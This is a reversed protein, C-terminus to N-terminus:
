RNIYGFFFRTDRTVTEDARLAVNFEIKDGELIFGRNFIIPGGTSVIYDDKTVEIKQGDRTLWIKITDDDYHYYNMMGEYVDFPVCLEWQKNEPWDTATEKNWISTDVTVKSSNGGTVGASIVEDTGSTLFWQKYEKVSVGVEVAHWLEFGAWVDMRGKIPKSTWAYGDENSKVILSFEAFDGNQADTKDARQVPLKVMIKNHNIFEVSAGVIVLPNEPSTGTVTAEVSLLNPDTIDEIASGLTMPYYGVKDNPDLIQNMDVDPIVPNNLKTLKFGNLREMWQAEQEGDIYKFEVDFEAFERAKIREFLRSSLMADWEITKPDTGKIVNARRNVVYINPSHSEESEHPIISYQIYGTSPYDNLLKTKYLAWTEDEKSLLDKKFDDPQGEEDIKDSVYIFHFKTEGMSLWIPQYVDPYSLEMDFVIDDGDSLENLTTKEEFVVKIERYWFDGLLKPEIGLRASKIQLKNGSYLEDWGNIKLATAHATDYSCFLRYTKELTGAIHDARTGMKEDSTVLAWENNYSIQFEDNFTKDWVTTWQGDIVEKCFLRVKFVAKYDEEHGQQPTIEVWVYLIDNEVDFVRHGAAPASIEVKEVNKSEELLEVELGISSTEESVVNGNLKFKICQFNSNPQTYLDGQGPVVTIDSEEVNYTINFGTFTEEWTKSTQKNSYSLKLDFQVNTNNEIEGTLSKIEGDFIAKLGHEGVVSREKNLKFEVEVEQETKLNLVEVTIDDSEVLVFKTDFIINFYETGQLVQVRQEEELVLHEKTQGCSTLVFTPVIATLAPVTMTGVLIKNLKKM